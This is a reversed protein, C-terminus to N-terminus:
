ILDSCFFFRVFHLYNNTIKSNPLNWSRNINISFRIFLLFYFIYSIQYFDAIPFAETSLFRVLILVICFFVNYKCVFCTKALCSDRLTFKGLRNIATGKAHQAKWHSLSYVTGKIGKRKNEKAQKSCKM